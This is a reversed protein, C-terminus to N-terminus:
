RCVFSVCRSLSAIPPFEFVIRTAFTWHSTRQMHKHYLIIYLTTYMDMHSDIFREHLKGLVGNAPFQGGGTDGIYSALHAM